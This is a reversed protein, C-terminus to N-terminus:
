YSNVNNQTRRPLYITGNPLHISQLSQVCKLEYLTPHQINSTVYCLRTCVIKKKIKDLIIKTKCKFKIQNMTQEVGGVYYIYEYICM